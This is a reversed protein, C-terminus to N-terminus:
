ATDQNRCKCTEYLAKGLYEFDSEDLYVQASLRVWLAGGHEFTPVYTNWKEILSQSIQTSVSRTEGKVEIPLRVCGMAVERGLEKERNEMVQTGLMSAVTTAGIEALRACYGMIAEEGGCIKERWEIADPVCFYPSVDLTGVSEFLSEFATQEYGEPKRLFTGSENAGQPVFGWSTPVTSRLLAQNREPVYFVACARPVFLWKHLNTVFFDPDLESLNLPILGVAHAADVCSLVGLERCVQVLSEFPLRAAPLSTVTDFIAVKPNEGAARIANVADRFAQVISNHTADPFTLTIRTIKANTTESIYSATKDCAGYVTSFVIIHDNPTFRLNRLVTNTGTTANQILVVTNLPAHLFSAIARRSRLLLNPYTHRYFPDPTAEALDQYHRLDDVLEKPATGFAGAFPM